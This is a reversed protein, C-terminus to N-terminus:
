TQKALRCEWKWAWMIGLWFPLLPKVGNWVKVRFSLISFLIWRGPKGLHSTVKRTFSYSSAAPPTMGQPRPIQHWGVQGKPKGPLEASLSDVQLAPSGPVIGPDHLCGPSPIPWGSWYEQDEMTAWVTFFGGAIRSVQTRDRSQFIRQLLSGSGVGTNKGPSHWPCFVRAPELGHPQLTPCSQLVKAKM